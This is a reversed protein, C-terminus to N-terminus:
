KAKRHSTRYRTRYAKTKTVIALVVSNIRLHVEEKHCRTTNNPAPKKRQASSPIKRDGSRPLYKLKQIGAPKDMATKSSLGVRFQFHNRSAIM